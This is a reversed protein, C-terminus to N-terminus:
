TSIFTRIPWGDPRDLCWARWEWVRRLRRRRRGRRGRRRRIWPWARGRGGRTRVGFGPGQGAGACDPPPRSLREPRPKTATRCLRRRRHSPYAGHAYRRQWHRCKSRRRETPNPWERGPRNNGNIQKNSNNIIYIVTYQKNRNKM